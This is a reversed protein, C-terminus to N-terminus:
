NKNVFRDLTTEVQELANIANDTGASISQNIKDFTGRLNRVAESPNSILENSNEKLKGLCDKTYARTDKDFQMALVGLLAGAVAGVILKRQGM